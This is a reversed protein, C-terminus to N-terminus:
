KRYLISDSSSKHANFGLFSKADSSETSAELPVTWIAELRVLTQEAKLALTEILHTTIM